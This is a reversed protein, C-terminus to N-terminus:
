PDLEQPGISRVAFHVPGCQQTRYRHLQIAAADCRVNVSRPTEFCHTKGVRIITGSADSRM